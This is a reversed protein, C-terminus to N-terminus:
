KGTILCAQHVLRCKNEGRCDALFGCVIQRDEFREQVVRAQM